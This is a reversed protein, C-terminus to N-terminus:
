LEMSKLKYDKKRVFCCFMKGRDSKYSVSTQQFFLKNCNQHLHKLRMNTSDERAGERVETFPRWPM